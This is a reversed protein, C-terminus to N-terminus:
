TETTIMEPYPPLNNAESRARYYSITERLFHIKRKSKIKQSISVISLVVLFIMICLTIYEAKGFVLKKNFFAEIQKQKIQLILFKHPVNFYCYFPEYISVDFNKPLSINMPFADFLRLDVIKRSWKQGIESITLRLVKFTVILNAFNMANTENAPTINSNMLAINKVSLIRDIIKSKPTEYMTKKYIIIEESSKCFTNIPFIVNNEFSKECFDLEKVTFNFIKESYCPNFIKIELTIIESAESNYPMFILFIASTVMLGIKPKRSNSKLSGKKSSTEAIDKFDTLSVSDESNDPNPASPRIKCKRRRMFYIFVVTCVSLFMLFLIIDFISFGKSENLFSSSKYDDIKDLDNLIQKDLADFDFRYLEPMLFFNVRQSITPVFKFTSDITSYNSEFKLNGIRFSVTVPLNFVFNPCALFREYVYIYFSECYIYNLNGIQKIQFIDEVTIVHKDECPESKWFKASINLPLNSSCEQTDPVLILNLYSQQNSPLPTICESTQDYIVSNPGVYKKPCIITKNEPRQYLIFPDATMLFVDPKISKVDFVISITNRLTDM